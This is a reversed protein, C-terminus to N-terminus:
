KRKARARAFVRDASTAKVKGTIYEAYRNESEKAWLKEHEEESLDDLSELLQKALAARSERPLELAESALVKLKRSM